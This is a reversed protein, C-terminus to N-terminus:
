KMDAGSTDCKEEHALTGFVEFSTLELFHEGEHNAGTQRLRVLRFSERPPKGIEFNCTVYQAKLDTNDNRRDVLEWTQGDNSVELVWSKLNFRSFSRISYSTLSVRRDKFNYCIWQNQRSNSSFRTDTGLDVTNEPADSTGFVSSAIVQVLGKKHVNGGCERTLHAIIGDLPKACDYVFVTGRKEQGERDMLECVLRRSMALWLSGSPVDDSLHSLFERADMGTMRDFRLFRFLEHYDEGAAIILRLLEGNDGVDFEPHEFVRECIEVGLHHLICGSQTESFHRAVELFNKALFEIEDDVPIGAEEKMELRTLVLVSGVALDSKPWDMDCIRRLLDQYGIAQALATITGRDISKDTLDIPLETDRLVLRFADGHDDIFVDFCDSTHDCQNNRFVHESALLANGKPCTHRASGISFCFSEEDQRYVRQLRHM